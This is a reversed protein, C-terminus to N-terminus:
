VVHLNETHPFGAPPKPVVPTGAIIPLAITVPLLPSPTGFASPASGIREHREVRQSGYPKYPHPREISVLAPSGPAKVV